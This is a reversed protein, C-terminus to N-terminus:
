QISSGRRERLAERVEDPQESPQHIADRVALAKRLCEECPDDCLSGGNKIFCFAGTAGGLTASEIGKDAGVAFALTALEQLEKFRAADAETLNGGNARCREVVAKKEEKGVVVAIVPSLLGTLHGAQTMALTLTQGPTHDRTIEVKVFDQKEETSV